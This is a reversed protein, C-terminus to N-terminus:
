DEDASLNDRFNNMAQAYATRENFIEVTDAIACALEKAIDKLDEKDFEYYNNAIYDFLRNTRLAECLDKKQQKTM